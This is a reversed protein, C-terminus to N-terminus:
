GRVVAAFSAMARRTRRDQEGTLEVGRGALCTKVEAAVAFAEEPACRTSLELTRSGDPFLWQEAVLPRDLEPLRAKLKLVTVPGLVTLDDLGPGAPVAAAYFEQQAASLLKRVPAHGRHVALVLDDAVDTHLAGACVFGGPLVDVETSFAPAHRLELPVEDPELPVRRVTCDATRRHTRRARVALGLDSLALDPTDCFFVQRIRADLPDLALARVAPLRGEDPVVLRLDVSDVRMLVPLLDRVQRLSLLSPGGNSAALVDFPGPAPRGAGPGRVISM